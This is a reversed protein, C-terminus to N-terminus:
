SEGTAYKIVTEAFDGYIFIGNLSGLVAARLQRKWRINFGDAAWQFLMPLLFHFILIRKMNEAAPGREERLNRWAGSEQRYYQNKSTMFMTFLKAWSGGRQIHSLNQVNADQQARATAKEFERMAIKRAMDEPRKLKIQQRYTYDYLPYGGFYIAARDGFKTFWM